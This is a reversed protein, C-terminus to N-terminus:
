ISLRGEKIEQMVINMGRTVHERVLSEVAKEDGDRMAQIMREHDRLSVEPMGKVHLIIRRYRYFYDRLDHIMRYLHESESAKYLRDHFTTNLQIFVEIDGDALAQRSEALIGELEEVSGEHIRKTALSAAYSELISRIGFIEEIDKLTFRKIEYGGYSLKVILNEQELRQLAERVPTRSAGLSKALKEEVLRQGSSIDERLISRRLTEYIIQGLSRKAVDRIREFEKISDLNDMDINSGTVM